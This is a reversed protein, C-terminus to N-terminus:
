DALIGPLGLDIGLFRTRRCSWRQITRSSVANRSRFPLLLTPTTEHLAGFATAGSTLFRIPSTNLCPPLLSAAHRWQLCIDRNSGRVIEYGLRVDYTGAGRPPAVRLFTSTSGKDFTVHKSQNLDQSDGNKHSHNSTCYLSIGLKM